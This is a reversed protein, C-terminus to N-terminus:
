KNELSEIRVQLEENEKVLKQIAGFMNVYIQDVDLNKVGLLGYQEPVTTVCKPLVEEVEQAIWGLKHSDNFMPDLKVIDDRLKFYHLKLNKVNELCTDLDADVIDEKIRRDSLITWESSTPKAASNQSLQLKYAPVPIGIGVSPETTEPEFIGQVPNTTYIVNDKVINTDSNECAIQTANTVPTANATFAVVYPTGSGIGLQGYNNYGTGSVTGNTDIIMTHDYGCAIESANTVPTANATFTNRRNSRSDIGLQGNLNNGTGSVTGNAVIMTYIQGCAVKSVNTVPTANATFTDKNAFPGESGIGLEGFYNYGTGSLTGNAVIMTHAYYGCVIQTANTVPTANATFSDVSLTGSGLGLQGYYNDGTGSVTGNTDIIMTYGPGCAINSVNTVPTANATFTNVSLTGSGIGLQGYGNYGTGYVKGGAIIMTHAGGCAVHTISDTINLATRTFDTITSGEYGLGLQGASNNGKMFLRGEPDIIASNFGGGFLQSVTYTPGPIVYIVGGIPTNSSSVTGGVVSPSTVPGTASLGGPGEIKVVSDSSLTLPSGGVINSATLTGTILADGGVHLSKQPNTIGIGVNSYINIRTGDIYLTDTISMINSTSITGTVSLDDGMTVDGAQTIRFAANSGLPTDVVPNSIYFYNGGTPEIGMDMNVSSPTILTPTARLRFQRAGELIVPSSGNYDSHIEFPVLNTTSGQEVNSIFVQGEVELPHKAETTGIGVYSM